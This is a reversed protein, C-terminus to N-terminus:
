KKQNEKGLIKDAVKKIADGAQKTTKMVNESYYGYGPLKRAGWWKEIYLVTKIWPKRQKKPKEDPFGIPLIAHVDVQEPLGLVGRLRDEEFAGVWCSGLGLSEAAIIMSMTCAATNQITYLKEGRTGYYRKQHEPEAVVAIVCPAQSIWKQNFCATSIADINNKERVVIFKVNFINGATPANLAANVINVINDWPVKKDKFKRVSRRNLIFDMTHM